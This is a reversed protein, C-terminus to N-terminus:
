VGLERNLADRLARLDDRTLTTGYEDHSDTLWWAGEGARRIEARGDKEWVRGITREAEARIRVHEAELAAEEAPTRRPPPDPPGYQPYPPDGALGTLCNPRPAPKKSAM